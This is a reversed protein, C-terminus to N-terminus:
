PVHGKARRLSQGLFGTVARQMIEEGGWCMLTPVGAPVEKVLGPPAFLLVAVPRGQGQARGVTIRVAEASASSLGARSKWGRPESFLAVLVPALDPIPEGDGGMTRPEPPGEADPGPSGRTVRIGSDELALYLPDRSPAPFPGGLDDDVSVIEVVSSVAWGETGVVWDLTREALERVRREDEPKGVVHEPKRRRERARAASQLRDLSSHVQMAPLREEVMASRLAGAVGLPDHPYLM